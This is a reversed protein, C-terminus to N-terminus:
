PLSQIFDYINAEKCAEIIKHESVIATVNDTTDFGLLLNDKITGQYMLPEQSVLAMHKRLDDLNLSTITQGDFLIEGALPEYFRELLAIVTSKGSGSSGLLAISQGAQVKM